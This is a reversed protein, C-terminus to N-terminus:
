NKKKKPSIKERRSGYGCECHPAPDLFGYLASGSGFCQKINNFEQFHSHYFHHRYKKSEHKNKLFRKTPWPM